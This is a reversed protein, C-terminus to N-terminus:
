EGPRALLMVVSRPAARYSHGVVTPTSEWPVIDHPPDLSTDIWRRWPNPDPSAVAPLEFDLAEWYANMILHFVLPEWRIEVGFVLSHSHESWDPQWLRTGHWATRSEGLLQNLSLRRREAELPRRMRREILMSVFRRV